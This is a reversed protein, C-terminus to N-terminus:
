AIIDLITEAAQVAADVNVKQVQVNKKALELQILKEAELSDSTVEKAAKHVDKAAKQLGQLATQMVSTNSVSNVL